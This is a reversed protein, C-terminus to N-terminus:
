LFNFKKTSLSYIENSTASYSISKKQRVRPKAKEIDVSTMGTGVTADTETDYGAM